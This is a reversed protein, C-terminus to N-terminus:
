FADQISGIFLNLLQGQTFILDCGLTFVFGFLAGYLHADHAVGDGGRRSMYSSYMLYGIGLVIAPIDFFPFFLFRLPALPQFFIFALVIGSVAGSAGLAAYGPNDRHRIYSPLSGAVIGALYMLVYLTRGGVDFYAVYSQEVLKGFEFFVFMNFLLHIWDRHVFGSTLFRYSNANFNQAISNPHFLLQSLLGRNNFARYSVFVTLVVTILTVPATTLLQFNDM